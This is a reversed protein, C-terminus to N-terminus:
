DGIMIKVIEKDTEQMGESALLGVCRITNEVDEKVIGDGGMFQQGDKYM